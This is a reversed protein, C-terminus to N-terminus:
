GELLLVGDKVAVIKAQAGAVLVDSGDALRAPWEGDAVKARGSTATVQTVVIASQGAMRAARDNLMPDASSQPMVRYIYWGAYVFILALAAFLGFQWAGGSNAGMPWIILGTIFAAAGIFLLFIGPALLEAAGLLVGVILWIHYPELGYQPFSPM